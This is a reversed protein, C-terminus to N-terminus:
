RIGGSEDSRRQTVGRPPILILAPSAPRRSAAAAHLLRGAEEGLRELHPDVSSLTVQDSECLSENNDVGVIAIDDPVNLHLDACGDALVRAMLDSCAMIATPRPLKRLFRRM